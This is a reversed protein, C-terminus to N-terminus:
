RGIGYGILMRYSFDPRLYAEFGMHVTGHTRIRWNIEAGVILGSVIEWDTLLFPQSGHDAFDGISAEIIFEIPPKHFDTRWRLGADGYLLQRWTQMSLPFGRALEGYLHLRIGPSEPRILWNLDGALVGQNGDGYELQLDDAALTYFCGKRWEFRLAAGFGAAPDVLVESILSYGGETQLQPLGSSAEVAHIGHFDERAPLRVFPSGRLVISLVHDPYLEIGGSPYFYLLNQYYLSAAGAYLHLFADASRWGLELSLCGDSQFDEPPLGAALIGAARLAFGMGSGSLGLYLDQQVAGRPTDAGASMAGWGSVASLRTTERYAFIGAEGQLGASAGINYLASAGPNYFAGATISADVAMRPDRRAAGLDVILDTPARPPVTIWGDALALNLEAALDWVGTSRAAALSSAVTTGPIYDIGARFGRQPETTAPQMRSPLSLAESPEPEFRRARLAIVSQPMGQEFTSPPPPAALNVLTLYRPYSLRNDNLDAAQPIELAKPEPAPLYLTYEGFLTVDPLRLTSQPFAPVALNLLVAVVLMIM